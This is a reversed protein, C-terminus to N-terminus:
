KYGIPTRASKKGLSSPNCRIADELHRQSIAEDALAAVLAADNAIFAIDSSAYGETLDALRALDIDNAM